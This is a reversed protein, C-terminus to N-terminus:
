PASDNRYATFIIRISSSEAGHHERALWVEGEGGAARREVLEYRQLADAPGVYCPGADTSVFYRM